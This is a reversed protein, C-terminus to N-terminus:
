SRRASSGAGNRQRGRRSWDRASGLKRGADLVEGTITRQLGSLDDQMAGKALMQWHEDGPLAAIKERLWPLGLRTSLEFYIEAVAEPPRKSRDAVEVIDLTAYLTDFTVVRAALASRCARRRRLGGRRRRHARARGRRAAAAAADALASSRRRSIRSRRQWTRPWGARACSGRRAASSCAARHRDADVVAGCRRGQQRAGRDGEVPRRLRLGRPQASLRARDGAAERRDDRCAPARVHQGRPQGHQQHRAHRHDRAEASAAAHVARYRERLATPFYRVLATAVWPDDPLASALLEDYLWIKSYALLVAREPSTLGRGAARREAIEEDSPLFEIARNLRGTKELFQIFRQQADLLQPAIRGTVSLVQTQFTNDRLVLAAVDDTM